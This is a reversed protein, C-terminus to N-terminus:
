KVRTNKLLVALESRNVSEADYKIMSVGLAAVTQKGSDYVPMAISYIYVNEEYNEEAYGASRIRHIENILDHYNSLSNKTKTNYCGVGLLCGIDEDSRSVLLTKGAATLHIEKIDGANLAIRYPTDGCEAKDVFLVRGSKEVAAYATM